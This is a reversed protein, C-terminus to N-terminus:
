PIPGWIPLEGPPSTEEREPVASHLRRVLGVIVPVFISAGLVASGLDPVGIRRAVLGIAVAVVGIVLPKALVGFPVQHGIRPGLSVCLAALMIDSTVTAIATGALGWTATLVVLFLLRGVTTLLLLYMTLRNRDSGTLTSLFPVTVAAALLSPTMILLADAGPAFGSGFMLTIIATPAIAIGAATMAAFLGFTEIAGRRLLTHWDHAEGLRASTPVLLYAVHTPLRLAVQVTVVAATYWGMSAPGLLLGVVARDGWTSFTTFYTYSVMPLLDSRLKRLDDLRLRPHLIRDSLLLLMAVVGSVGYLIAIAGWLPVNAGTRWFLVYGLMFVPGSTSIAVVSWPRLLGSYIASGADAVVALVLLIPLAVAFGEGFELDLQHELVGIGNMLLFGVIASGIIALNIASSSKERLRTENGAQEDQAVHKALTLPLGVTVVVSTVFIVMNAAVFVAYDTPGGARAVVISTLSTLATTAVTSFGLGVAARMFRQSLRETGGKM